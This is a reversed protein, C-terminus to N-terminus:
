LFCPVGGSTVILLCVPDDAIKRAQPDVVDIKTQYVQALTARMGGLDCRPVHITRAQAQLAATQHAANM